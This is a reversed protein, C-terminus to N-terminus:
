RTALIQFDVVGHRTVGDADTFSRSRSYQCDVFSNGSITLEVRDLAARISSMISACTDRDEHWVHVRIEAETGVSTKSSWDSQSYDDIDVYPLAANQPAGNYVTVSLAANLKAYVATKLEGEM